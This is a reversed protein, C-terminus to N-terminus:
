SNSNCWENITEGEKLIPKLYTHKQRRDTLKPYDVIFDFETLIVLLERVKIRALIPENDKDITVAISQNDYMSGLTNISTIQTGPLILEEEIEAGCETCVEICKHDPETKCLECGLFRIEANCCKSLNM